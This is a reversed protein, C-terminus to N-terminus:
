CLGHSLEAHLRVNLPRHYDRSDDVSGISLNSGNDFQLFATSPNLRQDVLHRSNRRGSGGSVPSISHQDLNQSHRRNMNTMIPPPYQPEKETRLLGSRSLTSTNRQVGTQPDEEQRQKQRRRWLAFVIGGALALVGAVGGVVGGV